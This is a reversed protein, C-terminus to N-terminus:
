SSMSYTGKFSLCANKDRLVLGVHWEAIGPPSIIELTWEEMQVVLHLGAETFEENSLCVHPPM